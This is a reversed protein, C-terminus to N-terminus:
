GINPQLHFMRKVSVESSANHILLQYDELVLFRLRANTFSDNKM